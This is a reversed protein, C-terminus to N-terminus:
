LAEFNGYDGVINLSLEANADLLPTFATETATPQASPSATQSGCSTLALLLTVSLLLAFFRKM